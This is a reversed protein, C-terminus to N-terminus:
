GDVASEPRQRDSEDLRTAFCQIQAGRLDILAPPVKPIDNRELPTANLTMLNPRSREAGFRKAEGATRYDTM